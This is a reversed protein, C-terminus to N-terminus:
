VGKCGRNRATGKLYARRVSGAFVAAQAYRERKQAGSVFRILGTFPILSGAVAETAGFVFEAPTQKKAAELAEPSDVDPGLMEDIKKVETIIQRCTRLGKMSYPEAMMAELEPAVKKKIINMDKLPKTAINEMTNLARDGDNIETSSKEKPDTPQATAPAGIGVILLTATGIMMVNSVRM